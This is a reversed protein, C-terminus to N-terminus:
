PTSTNLFDSLQIPQGQVAANTPQANVPSFNQNLSQGTGPTFGTVANAGATAGPQGFVGALIQDVLARYQPSLEGSGSAQLNPDQRAILSNQQALAQANPPTPPPIAPPKPAGGVANAIGLGTSALGGAGALIPILALLQPM